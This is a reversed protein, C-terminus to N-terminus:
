DATGIIKKSTLLGDLGGVTAQGYTFSDMHGDHARQLNKREKKITQSSGRAKVTGPKTHLMEKGAKPLAREQKSEFKIQHTGPM